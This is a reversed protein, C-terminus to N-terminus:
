SGDSSLRQRYWELTKQIAERHPTIDSGFAQEYKAHDVVFPEEFEYLMEKVERLVPSFVGLASIMWSPTRRMRASEGAVQFALTLFQRTTLTEASPVHWIDGLAEEREGLTVLGSAFDETFTYTHPMDLNGVMNVTKGALMPEFVREGMFSNVAGPGYADSVRGITARVRGSEHAQMLTEAIRARTRGKRTSARYPMAETIPGSVQGYMYLNDCFVLRAGASAAGEIIGAMLAPFKEEWQPYPVNTCSYVVAAGDCAARASALDAADGKIIEVGAPVDARGSRNVARVRKGRRVLERVVANGLGGSAGFVVHLDSNDNM